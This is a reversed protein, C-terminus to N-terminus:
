EASAQFAAEAEVLFRKLADGSIIGEENPTVKIEQTIALMIHEGHENRDILTERTLLWRIKGEADIFRYRIEYYPQKNRKIEAFFAMIRARDDPHTMISIIRAGFRLMQEPSFGLLREINPSCYLNTRQELNYLYIIFPLKEISKAFVATLDFKDTRLHRERLPILQLLWSNGGDIALLDVRCAVVRQQDRLYLQRNALEKRIPLWDLNNFQGALLSQMVDDALRHIVGAAAKNQWLLYGNDSFCWSCIASQELLKSLFKREPNKRWPLLTNLNLM